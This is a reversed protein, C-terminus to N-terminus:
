SKEWGGSSKLSSYHVKEIGFSDLTQTSLSIMKLKHFSKLQKLNRQGFALIFM